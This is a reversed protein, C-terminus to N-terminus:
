SIYLKLSVLKRRQIIFVRLHNMIVRETQSNRYNLIRSLYKYSNKLFQVDEIQRFQSCLSCNFRLTNVNFVNDIVLRNRKTLGSSQWSNCIRWPLGSPLRGVDNLAMNRTIRICICKYTHTRARFRMPTLPRRKAPAVRHALMSPYYRLRSRIKM